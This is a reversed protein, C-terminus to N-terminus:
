GARRTAVRELRAVGVRRDGADEGRAHGGEIQQAARYGGPAVHDDRVLIGIEAIVVEGVEKTVIRYIEGLLRKDLAVPQDDPAIVIQRVAHAGVLQEGTLQASPQVASRMSGAGRMGITVKGLGIVSASSV